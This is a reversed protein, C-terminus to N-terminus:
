FISKATKVQMLWNRGGVVYIKKHKEGKPEAFCVHNARPQKMSPLKHYNGSKYVHYYAIPM